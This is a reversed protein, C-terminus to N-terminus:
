VIMRVKLKNGAIIEEKKVLLEEVDWQASLYRGALWDRREKSYFVITHAALEATDILVKRWEEPADATLDTAILGPHIAYCLIGKDGYEAAIFESLRLAALKSTQYGSHGSAVWHAGISGVNVITKLGGGSSILLPLAAQTVDFLGKVNVMWVDWWESPDIDGISQCNHSSGANNVVIDLRQFTAKVQKAASVVAETDTIDTQLLLVELNQDSRQAELCAKRTDELGSKTRALLALGSAGGQAYAISIAKGIGRSAGTVLVVKGSLDTKSPDIANYTDHRATPVFSTGDPHAPHNVQSTM